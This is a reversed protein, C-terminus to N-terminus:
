WHFWITRSKYRKHTYWFREYDHVAFFKKIYSWLLVHNCRFHQTDENKYSFVGTLFTALKVRQSTRKKRTNASILNLRSWCSFIIVISTLYNILSWLSELNLFVLSINQLALPKPKGDLFPLFADQFYDRLQKFIWCGPFTECWPMLNRTVLKFHASLGCWRSRTNM